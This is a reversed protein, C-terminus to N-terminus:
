SCLTFPGLLEPTQLANSLYKEKHAKGRDLNLQMCLPCMCSSTAVSTQKAPVHWIQCLPGYLTLMLNFFLCRQKSYVFRVLTGTIATNSPQGPRCPLLPPFCHKRKDIRAFLQLCIFTSVTKVQAFIANTHKGKNKM